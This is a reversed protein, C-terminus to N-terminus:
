DNSHSLHADRIVDVFARAIGEYGHENPHFLDASLKGHWPPSFAEGLAVVTLKQHTAAKLLAEAAIRHTFVSRFALPTRPRDFINGVITGRPLQALLKELNNRLKKRHKLSILDNSGVLLTVIVPTVKLDYMKPLQENLVDEIKAGSKSLNIIAYEEGEAELMDHAQGVWGKRYDSAGIGLSMSDGLVVWLPLRGRLAASAEKRWAEQYLKTQARNM